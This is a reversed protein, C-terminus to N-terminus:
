NIKKYEDLIRNSRHYNRLSCYKQRFSKNPDLFFISSKGQKGNRWKIFDKWRLSPGDKYFNLSVKNCKLWASKFLSQNSERLAPMIRFCLDAVEREGMDTRQLASVVGKSYFKMFVDYSEKSDSMATELGTYIEGLSLEESGQTFTSRLSSVLDSRTGILIDEINNEFEGSKYRAQLDYDVVSRIKSFYVDNGREDLKLLKTICSTIKFSKSELPDEGNTSFEAIKNTTQCEGPLNDETITRPHYAEKILEIIKETLEKTREINIVQPYYPHTIEAMVRGDDLSYCNEDDSSNCSGKILNDMVTSSYKKIKLLGQLANPGDSRDANAAVVVSYADVSVTQAREINVNDLVEQVISLANGVSSAWDTLNLSIRKFRIYSIFSPCKNGNADCVPTDVISPDLLQYALLSSSRTLFIPNQIEDGFNRTNGPTLSPTKMVSVLNSIATAIAERRQDESTIKRLTKETEIKYTQLYRIVKKLLESELIPKERNVLDGESTIASGAYVEKLWLSLYKLEYSLLSIGELNSNGEDRDERYMDLLSMTDSAECYKDTLAQSVCRVATAGNINDFAELTKNFKSDHIFKRISKIIVGLTSLILSTGPETFAAAALLSNSALGSVVNGNNDFCSPNTVATAILGEVGSLMQSAALSKNNSFSSFRELDSEVNILEVQSNYIETELYSEISTSLNGSSLLTSLRAVQSELSRRSEEEKAYVLYEQYIRDYNLLTQEVGSVGFCQSNEKLRRVTSILNQVNSISDQVHRTVVSPCQSKFTEIIMSAEDVVEEAFINFSFIFLLAFHRFKLRDM